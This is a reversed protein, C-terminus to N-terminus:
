YHKSRCFLYRRCTPFGVYLCFASSSPFDTIGLASQHGTYERIYLTTSFIADNRRHQPNIRHFSIDDNKAVTQLVAREPGNDTGDTM